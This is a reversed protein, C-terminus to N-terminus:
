VTKSIKKEAELDKLPWRQDDFPLRSFFFTKKTSPTPFFVFFLVFFTEKTSSFFFLGTVQGIGNIYARFQLGTHLGVRTLLVNVLMALRMFHNIGRPLLNGLFFFESSILFVNM